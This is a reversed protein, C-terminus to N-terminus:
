RPGPTARAIMERAASIPTHGIWNFDGRGYGHVVVGVVKGRWLVASGSFGPLGPITSLATDELGKEGGGKRGAFLGRVPLPGDRLERRMAAIWVVAGYPPESEDLVACPGQYEEPDFRAVGIDVPEVTFEPDTLLVDKGGIVVSTTYDEITQTYVVQVQEGEGNIWTGHAELSMQGPDLVHGATVLVGPAVIFGTGGEQRQVEGLEDKLVLGTAEVRIVAHHRYSFAIPVAWPTEPATREAIFAAVLAERESAGRVSDAIAAVEVELRDLAGQVLSAERVRAEVAGEVQEMRESLTATRGLASEVETRLDAIGSLLFTRFLETTARQTEVERGVKFLREEYISYWTHAKDRDANARITLAGGLMLAGVSATLSAILLLRPGPNM